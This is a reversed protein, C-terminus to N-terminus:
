VGGLLQKRLKEFDIELEPEQPRITRTLFVAIVELGPFRDQLVMKMAKFHSGGAIVDDFVIVRQPPPSAVEENIELIRAREEPSIGKQKSQITETQFVLERLDAIAPKVIKLVWGLRPDHAPDGRVVSPPMPVWTWDKSFDSPLVSGLASAAYQIANVKHNWRFNAREAMPIQLNKILQNTPYEQFSGGKVYEWLHFCVDEESLHHYEGM